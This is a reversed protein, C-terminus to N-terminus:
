EINKQEHNPFSFLQSITNYLIFVFKFLFIKGFLKNEPIKRIKSTYGYSLQFLTLKRLQLDSTRDWDPVSLLNKM